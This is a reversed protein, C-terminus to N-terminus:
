KRDKVQLLVANELDLRQHSGELTGIVTSSANSPRRSSSSARVTSTTTMTTTTTARMVRTVAGPELNVNELKIITMQILKRRKQLLDVFSKLNGAVHKRRKVSAALAANKGDLEISDVRRRGQRRESGTSSSSTTTASLNSTHSTSM